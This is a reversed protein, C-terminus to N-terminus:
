PRACTRGGRMISFHGRSGSPGSKWCRSWPVQSCCIATSGKSPAHWGQGSAVAAKQVDLSNTVLRARPSLKITEGDKEFEWPLMVGHVFKHRITQHRLIDKPHAPRGHEAIYRPSAVCVYRDHRAGIPVAIMDQALSEDYRIGADFGRGFVDVFGDEAIVEVDVRPYAELFAALVDPLFRIAVATPVNLRLWGSPETRTQPAQQLAEALDALLPEVRALLQKGEDTLAISRTTRHLLRTNLREELRRLAASLASASQATKAAAARFGGARAVNVFASLEALDDTM